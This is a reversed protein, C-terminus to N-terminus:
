GPAALRRARPRLPGRSRPLRFPRLPPPAPSPRAFRPSLRGPVAPSASSAGGPPAPISTLGHGPRGRDRPLRVPPRGGTVSVEITNGDVREFSLEVTKDEPTTLRTPARSRCRTSRVCTCMSSTPRGPAGRGPGLGREGKSPSACPPERGECATFTQTRDATVNVSGM